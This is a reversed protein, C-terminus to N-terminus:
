EDLVIVERNKMIGRIIADIFLISGFGVLIIAIVNM